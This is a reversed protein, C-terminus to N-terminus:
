NRSRRGGEQITWQNVHKWKRVEKTWARKWQMERCKQMVVLPFGSLLVELKCAILSSLGSE